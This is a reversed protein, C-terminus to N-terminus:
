EKCHHSTTVDYCLIVSLPVELMVTQLEPAIILPIITINTGEDNANKPLLGTVLSYIIRQNLEHLISRAM